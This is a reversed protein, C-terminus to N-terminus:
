TRISGLVKWADLSAVYRRTSPRSGCISMLEFGTTHEFYMSNSSLAHRHIRFELIHIDIHRDNSDVVQGLFIGFDYEPMIVIFQHVHSITSSGLENLSSAHAKHLDEVLLTLATIFVLMFCLRIKM